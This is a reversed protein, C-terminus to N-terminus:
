KIDKEHRFYCYAKIFEEAKKDINSIYIPNEWWDIETNYKTHKTIIVIGSFDGKKREKNASTTNEYQKEIHQVDEMPIILDKNTFISESIKTKKM